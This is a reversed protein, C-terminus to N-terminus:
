GNGEGKRLKSVKGIADVEARGLLVKGQGVTFLDDVSGAVRGDHTNDNRLVLSGRGFELVRLVQILDLGVLLERDLHLDVVELSTEEDVSLLVVEGCGREGIATANKLSMRVNNNLLDVAQCRRSDGVGLVKGEELTEVVSGDITDQRSINGITKRSTNVSHTGDIGGSVVLRSQNTDGLVTHQIINNVHTDNGRRGRELDKIRVIRQLEGNLVLPQMATQHIRETSQKRRRSRQAYWKSKADFQHEGGKLRLRELVKM